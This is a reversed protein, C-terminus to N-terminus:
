EFFLKAEYPDRPLFEDSYSKALLLCSLFKGANQKRFAANEKIPQYDFPYQCSPKPNYKNYRRYIAKGVRAVYRSEIDHKTM